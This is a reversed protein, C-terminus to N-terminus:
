HIRVKDDFINCVVVRYDICSQFEFKKGRFAVDFFPFVVIYWEVVIIDPITSLGIAAHSSEAREIFYRGTLFDCVSKGFGWPLEPSVVDYTDSYHGQIHLEAAPFFNIDVAIGFVCTHNIIGVKLLLRYLRCLGNSSM